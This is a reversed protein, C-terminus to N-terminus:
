IQPRCGAKATLVLPHETLPRRPRGSPPIQMPPPIRRAAALIEAGSAEPNDHLYQCILDGVHDGGVETLMACPVGARGLSVISNFTSGGPVATQPQDDKFLIDFVTEGIGIVRRTASFAKPSENEM